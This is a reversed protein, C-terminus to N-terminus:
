GCRCITGWTRALSMRADRMQQGTAAGLDALVQPAAALRARAAPHAALVHVGAELVDLHARRYGHGIYGDCALEEDGADHRVVVSVPAIGPTWGLGISEAAAAMLTSAVGPLRSRSAAAELELGRVTAWEFRDSPRLAGATRHEIAAPTLLVHTGTPDGLALGAAVPVAFALRGQSETV